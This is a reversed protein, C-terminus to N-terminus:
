IKQGNVDRSNRSPIIERIIKKERNPTKKGFFIIKKSFITETYVYDIVHENTM